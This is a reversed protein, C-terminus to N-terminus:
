VCRSTYLLCTFNIIEPGGIGPYFYKNGGSFGVVEHPFVPGCILLQDYDLIMKNLKVPVDEALLGGTIKGIEDAPITGLQVFTEPNEWHHNFINSKGTKGDVVTRGILRDRICM